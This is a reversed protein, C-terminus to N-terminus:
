PTGSLEIAYIVYDDSSITLKGQLQEEILLKALRLGLSSPNALSVDHPFPLGDNSIVIQTNGRENKSMDIWIYGERNKPFGHKFTNTIIENIALGLPVAMDLDLEIIECNYSVLVKNSTQPNSHHIRSVLKRVYQNFQILSVNDSQYLQEHVLSMSYIRESIQRFIDDAPRHKQLSAQMNLLSIVVNMNNKTRYYVERVMINKQRLAKQAEEQAAKREAVEESLQKTRDAVSVELDHMVEEIKEGELNLQYRLFFERRYFLETFYGFMLLMNAATLFFFNDGYEAWLLDTGGLVSLIYSIVLTWGIASAWYFRFGSLIHIFILILILGTYYSEASYPKTVILAIVGGGVVLMYISNFLQSHRRFVDWFSFIYVLITIPIVFWFRNVLLPYKSGSLFIYEITYFISYILVGFIMSRRTKAVTMEFYYKLFAKETELSFSLGLPDTLSYGPLWSRILTRVKRLLKM